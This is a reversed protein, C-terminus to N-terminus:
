AAARRARWRSLLAAEGQSLEGLSTVADADQASDAFPSMPAAESRPAHTALQRTMIQMQATLALQQAHQDRVRHGLSRSIELLAHMEQELRASEGGAKTLARGLARIRRSQWSALGALLTIGLALGLDALMAIDM